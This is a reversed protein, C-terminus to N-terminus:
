TSWQAYETIPVSYRIVVSDGAAGSFTMPSVESIDFHAVGGSGDDQFRLQVTTATKYVVIGTFQITGADRVSLIGFPESNSDSANAVKTTDINFSSPITLKLVTATPAGTNGLIYVSMELTDGVRRRFGTYTVNSVWSGTPTFSEWNTTGRIATTYWGTGNCVLEVFDGINHMDFTDLTVNIKETSNADITVKGTSADVKKIYIRRGTSSAAAPLAVTCTHTGTTCLVTAFGDTTTLTTTADGGSTSPSTVGTQLPAWSTVGSGNTQLAQGNLGADVPLTLTYTASMSASGIIKTTQSNAGFYLARLGLTASGIDYSNTTKIPISTALSATISLDDASANGLNVHGNLTATGACTLASISLDKTGDTYGNLLDNLNQMVQSADATSGNTLSYTLSPATM